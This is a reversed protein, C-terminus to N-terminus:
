KSKPPLMNRMETCQEPGKVSHGWFLQWYQTLGWILSPEGAQRTEQTLQEEVQAM